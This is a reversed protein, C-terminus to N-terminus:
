IIHAKAAKAPMNNPYSEPYMEDTRAIFAKSLSYPWGSVKSSPAVPYAYSVQCFLRITDINDAPVNKPARTDPARASQIPRRVVIMLPHPTKMTPTTTWTAAVFMGAKTTPLNTAPNPTPNTEAILMRYM